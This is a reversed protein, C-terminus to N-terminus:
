ALSALCALLTRAQVNVRGGQRVLDSLQGVTLWAYQPPLERPLRGDAEVVLYRSEANRFRGGEEAHVASYLIRAPDASLVDDLLFPWRGAPHNEPVCQVTPALEVVGPLGGEMKAQVLVHRVGGVDRVVFATVGLGNPELLPQSWSGVERSAARVSVAVVRFFRGDHRAIEEDTRYWGPLGDLPVRDIRWEPEARHATLWGQVEADSLLAPGEEERERPGAALPPLASLVTRADMNVTNDRGLLEYLQGLTLWCFDEHPPVDEDTEVIMNRNSKRYFWSGHESQLVDSLIRGRRPGMFHELYRVATGGHVRTYNSRTAQVTPSLQLLNPNGPEMKAQMLFHPVGDFEKVLIGLVGVEHQRIIPQRWSAVPGATTEVSLGEVTFFRGSRHELNGSGPAFGWGDLAAFPIRSVEFRHARGRGALWEAFEETRLQVGAGRRAASAALRETLARDTRPRLAAAPDLVSM